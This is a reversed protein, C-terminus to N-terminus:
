RTVLAIGLEYAEQELGAGISVGSGLVAGRREDGDGAPPVYLNPGRLSLKPGKAQLLLSLSAKTTRALHDPRQKASPAVWPPPQLRSLRRRHNGRVAGAAAHKIKSLVLKTLLRKGLGFSGRRTLWRAHRAFRVALGATAFNYFFAIAGM